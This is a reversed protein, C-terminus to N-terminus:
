RCRSWVHTSGVMGEPLPERSARTADEIVRQRSSKNAAPEYVRCLLQRDHLAGDRELTSGYKVLIEATFFHVFSLQLMILRPSGVNEIIEATFIFLSFHFHRQSHRPVSKNTSLQKSNFNHLRVAFVCYRARIVFACDARSNFEREIKLCTIDKVCFGIITIKNEIWRHLELIYVFIDVVYRLRCKFFYKPSSAWWCFNM